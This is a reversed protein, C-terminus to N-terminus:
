WYYSPIGLVIKLAVMILLASFMGSLVLFVFSVMISREQGYRTELASYILYISYMMGGLHLLMTYPSTKFIGSLIGPTLAYTFLTLAENHSVKARVLRIDFLYLLYAMVMPLLAVTIYYMLAIKLSDALPLTIAQFQEFFLFYGLLLPTAIIFLFLRLFGTPLPNMETFVSKVNQPNVLSIGDIVLSATYSIIRLILNGEQSNAM